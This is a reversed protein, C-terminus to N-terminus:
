FVHQVSEGPGSGDSKNFELVVLCYQVADDSRVIVPENSDPLDVRIVGFHRESLTPTQQSRRVAAILQERTMTGVAEPDWSPVEILEADRLESVFQESTARDGELVIRESDEDVPEIRDTASERSPIRQHEVFEKLRGLVKERNGARAAVVVVSWGQPQVGTQAISERTGIGPDTPVVEHWNALSAVVLVMAALSIFAVIQHSWGRRLDRGAEPIRQVIPSMEVRVAAIISEGVMTRKAVVPASELIGSLRVMEAEFLSMQEPFEVRFRELEVSEDPTLEGDRAVSCLELAHQLKQSNENVNFEPYQM